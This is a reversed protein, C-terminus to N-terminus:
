DGCASSAGSLQMFRYGPRQPASLNDRRAYFKLHRDERGRGSGNAANQATLDM